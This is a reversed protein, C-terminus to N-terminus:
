FSFVLDLTRVSLERILYLGYLIEKLHSLIKSVSTTVGHGAVGGVLLKVADLHYEELKKFLELYSEDGKSAKESMELLLDSTKAFASVIICLEGDSKHTDLIIKIVKERMSHSGLSSGGFKM